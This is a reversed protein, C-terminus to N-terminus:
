LVDHVVGVRVEHLNRRLLPARKQHQAHRLVHRADQAHEAHALLAVADPKALSAVAAAALLREARVQVREDLEAVLHARERALRAVLLHELQAVLNAVVAERREAHADVVGRAAREPLEVVRLLELELHLALALLALRFGLRRAEFLLLRRALLRLLFAEGGDGGRVEELLALVFPEVALKVVGAHRRVVLLPLLEGLAGPFLEVFGELHLLLVVVRPEFLLGGFFRRLCVM